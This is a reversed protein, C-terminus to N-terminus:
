IVVYFAALFEQLTQHLFSYCISSSEGIYLDQVTSMLGLPNCELTDFIYQCNQIGKAAIKSIDLISWYMDPPLETLHSIKHAQFSSTPDVEFHRQLLYVVLATYIETLTKPAFAKKGKNWYMLYLEAIVSCYLPVYM